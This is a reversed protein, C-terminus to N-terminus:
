IIKEENKELFFDRSGLYRAIYDPDIFHDGWSADRTLLVKFSNVLNYDRSADIEEQVRSTSARYWGSPLSTLLCAFVKKRKKDVLFALTETKKNKMTQEKKNTKM